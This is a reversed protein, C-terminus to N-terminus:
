RHHRRDFFEDHITELENVLSLFAGRPVSATTLLRLIQVEEINRRRATERAVVVAPTDPPLGLERGIENALNDRITRFADSEDGKRELVTAIADLFEEKSRRGPPPSPLPLGFRPMSHWLLVAMLLVAQLTMWLAPPQGLLVM